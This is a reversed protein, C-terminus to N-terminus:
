GRYPAVSILGLGFAKGHGIGSRVAALLGSPDTVQLVGDFQAVALVV